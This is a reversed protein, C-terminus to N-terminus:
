TLTQSRSSRSGHRCRQGEAEAQRDKAHLPKEMCAISFAYVPGPPIPLAEQEEARHLQAAWVVYRYLFMCDYIKFRQLVPERWQSGCSCQVDVCLSFASALTMGRNQVEFTYYKLGYKSM